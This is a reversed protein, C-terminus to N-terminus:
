RSKHKKSEKPPAPQDANPIAVEATPAPRGVVDAVKGANDFIVKYYLSRDWWYTWEREQISATRDSPPYGLSLLVQERTMGREIKANDIARRVRLNFAAIRPRPDTALLVKDLYQNFSEAKTGYEHTLTLLVQGTSFTVSDDTLGEIRVPTGAPLKTGIWYNADSIADATYHLNCCTFREPREIPRSEGPPPSLRCGAFVVLALWALRARM